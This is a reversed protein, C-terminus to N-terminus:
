VLPVLSLWISRYVVLLVVLLLFVTALAARDLSTQIDRMYDLGLVADGSWNIELGAPPALAASAPQAKLWAVARQTAPSVFSKSLHVGMLQVTGDRSVLREAIERESRPGVV